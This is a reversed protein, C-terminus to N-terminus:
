RMRRTIRTAQRMRRVAQRSTKETRSAAAREEPTMTEPDKGRTALLGIGKTIGIAMAARIAARMLHRGFMNIFQNVDSKRESCIAPVPKTAVSITM